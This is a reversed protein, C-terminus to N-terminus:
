WTRGAEEARQLHTSWLVARGRGPGRDKPLRDASVLELDELIALHKRIQSVVTGTSEALEGASQPRDALQHLIETRMSHGIADIIAKVEGPMDPPTPLQPMARM